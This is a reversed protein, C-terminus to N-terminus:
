WSEADVAVSTPGKEITDYLTDCDTINVYSSFKTVPTKLDCQGDMATYPYDEELTIGELLVYEFASSMLGGNCGM